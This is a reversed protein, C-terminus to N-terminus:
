TSGFNEVTGLAPKRVELSQFPSAHSEGSLKAPYRRLVDKIAITSDNCQGPIGPVIDRLHILMRIGDGSLDEGQNLTV